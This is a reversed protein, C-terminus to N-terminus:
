TWTIALQHIHDGARKKKHNIKRLDEGQFQTQFIMLEGLDSVDEMRFHDDTLLWSECHLFGALM